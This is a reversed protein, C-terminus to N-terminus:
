EVIKYVAEFFAPQARATRSLIKKWAPDYPYGAETITIGDNNNRFSKWQKMYFYGRTLQNILGFYQKIQAQTMEHLSSINVFLDVSKEKLQEAQHPLLFVVDAAAFEDRVEGIKKFPHFRMIKREPLVKALYEQSVYLAPPIDVVIYKCNPFAEMFVHANRGYGAGLECITLKNEFGLPAAEMITSLELVSNALDQSILRNRFHIPFPNGFKPEDIRNLLKHKDHREALLWLLRTFVSLKYFQLRDLDTEAEKKPFYTLLELWNRLGAEAALHRFQDNRLGVIFTFYNKALTRKLNHLGSAELQAINKENLQQWFKSPLYIEKGENLCSFMENLITRM